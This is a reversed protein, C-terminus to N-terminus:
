KYDDILFNNILGMTNILIKKELEIMTNSSHNNKKTKKLDYILNSSLDEFNEIKNSINKLKLIEYIEKFNSVHPGHYIKCNLKAADIPNQGGDLKFSEDLSKGIFVSKSYKYYNQLIGYSNIIIVEKNELIKEGDNLIQTRFGFDDSLKKIKIVRDIHRPIIVTIIQNFKKKLNLHVKLCPIDEKQHTSAAVWFRCNSLIKENINTIKDPNIKEILKINGKYHINKVDFDKLFKETESNSCLCLDFSSFIKKATSKFFAWRNYSKFTLRANILAIPIKKKKARLIFNPWIESDVLFIRYPNWLELFEKILYDVDFPFYRHHINEYKKLIKEAILSSSLTTTTILFELNKKDSNIKDIIPLISKLEGISSAHFLILKSNKKRKVNFNSVLIKEKYRKIDEKKLFLRFIIFFFLLPYAFTTFVRYAIIM